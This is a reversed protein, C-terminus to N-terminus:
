GADGGPVMHHGRGAIPFRLGGGPTHGWGRWGAWRGHGLGRPWPVPRSEGAEKLLRLGRQAEELPLVFSTKATHFCFGCKYNCQRTFHYNVSTPTLPRDPGGGGAEAEGAGEPEPGDQRGQGRHTWGLGLRLAARLWLLLPALSGWLSGLPGRLAGLLKWPFALPAPAWMTRSRPQAGRAARKYTHLCATVPPLRVRGQPQREASDSNRNKRGSFSLQRPALGPQPTPVLARAVAEGPLPPVPPPCLHLIASLCLPWRQGPLM